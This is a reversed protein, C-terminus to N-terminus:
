GIEGRFDSMLTIMGDHLIADDHKFIHAIPMTHSLVDIEEAIALFRILIIIM